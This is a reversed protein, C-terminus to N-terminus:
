IQGMYSQLIIVASLKDLNEKKRRDKKKVGAQVMAEMARKSTYSEDELQVPIQTFLKELRKKFERVHPTAHTDSGDSRTPYGLVFLEVEEKETYSKLYSMIEKEPVTELASAIIQMPDTVALGVRKLGYDISLIRPM